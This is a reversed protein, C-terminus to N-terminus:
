RFNRRTHVIVVSFHAFLSDYLNVVYQHYIDLIRKYNFKVSVSAM